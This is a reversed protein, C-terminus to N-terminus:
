PAYLRRYRHQDRLVRKVYNRTERYSINEIIIEAAPDSPGTWWKATANPGANYAAIARPLNGDFRELMQVIYATGFMINLEPEYLREAAFDDVKLQAALRQGTSPLVQMLGRADAHSRANPDYASEQRIIAAVLYPDLDNAAANTTITEWYGLPYKVTDIRYPFTDLRYTFRRNDDDDKLMSELASAWQITKLYPGAIGYIRSNYYRLLLQRDRTDPTDFIDAGDGILGVLWDAENAAHRQLGVRQLEFINMLHPEIRTYEEPPLIQRMQDVVEAIAPETGYVPASPPEPADLARLRETARLGYYTDPWRTFLRQYTAAADALQGAQEQARGLWYLNDDGYSGDPFRQMGRTFTEVARAYEGHLYWCWGARWLSEEAFSSGPYADYGQLYWSAAEDYSKEGQYIRGIVYMANDAWTSEPYEAVLQQMTKKAQTNYDANWSKSGIIYLARAAIDDDKGTYEQIISRLAQMGDDYQGSRFYADAIGIECEELYASRPYREKIAAYQARASKYWRAEVFARAQQLMTGETQPPQLAPNDEILADFQQQAQKRAPHKPYLTLMKNLSFAAERPRELALFTHALRYYIEGQDLDPHGLLQRYVDRADIYRQRAYLLNAAHFRVSHTQPHSPYHALFRQFVALATEQDDLKMATHGLFFLVYDHLEAYQRELMEFTQRAQPYDRNEYQQVGEMFQQRCAELSLDGEPAEAPAEASAVASLLSLILLMGLFLSLRYKM